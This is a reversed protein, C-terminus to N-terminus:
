TEAFLPNWREIMMIQTQIQNTWNPVKSNNCLKGMQDNLLKQVWNKWGTTNWPFRPLLGLHRLFKRTYSKELKWGFLKRSVILQFHKTFFSLTRDHKISRWDKRWLLISTSGIYRIRINRGHEICTNHMVRIMWTSRTLIRTNKTWPIWLSFSYQRDTAWIKVERNWDQISSPFTFQKCMWRSIHIPLHRESYCRQETFYSWHFQTRFPRSSSPPVLNSRIFWYLAPIKEQKRRRKGHQEEVKWWVLASFVCLPESSLRKYEGSYLREM